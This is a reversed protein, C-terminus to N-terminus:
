ANKSITFARKINRIRTPTVGYLIALTGCTRPDQAITTQTETTLFRDPQFDAVATM